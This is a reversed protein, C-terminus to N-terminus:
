PCDPRFRELAPAGTGRVTSQCQRLSYQACDHRGLPDPNRFLPAAEDNSIQYRLMRDNPLPKRFYAAFIGLVHRDPLDLSGLLLDRPIQVGIDDLAKLASARVHPNKEQLLSEITQVYNTADSQHRGLGYAAVNGVDPDDDRLAALLLGAHDPKWNSEDALAGVAALRVKPESDNLWNTAATALRPDALPQNQNQVVAAANIRVVPNTNQLAPLLATVADAGFEMLSSVAFYGYQSALEDAFFAIAPEFALDRMEEPKFTWTQKTLWWSKEALRQVSQSCDPLDAEALKAYPLLEDPSAELRETMEKMQAESQPDRLRSPLPIGRQSLMKKLYEQQENRLEVRRAVEAVDNSYILPLKAELM